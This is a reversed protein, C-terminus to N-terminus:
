IVKYRFGPCVPKGMYLTLVVCIAVRATRASEEIESDTRGNRYTYSLLRSTKEDFDTLYWGADMLYSVLTFRCTADLLGTGMFAGAM